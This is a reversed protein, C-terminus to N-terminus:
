TGSCYFPGDITIHFSLDHFFSEDYGRLAPACLAGRYDSSFLSCCVKKRVAVNVLGHRDVSFFGTGIVDSNELSEM